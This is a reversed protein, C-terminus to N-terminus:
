CRDGDGPRQAPRSQATTTAARSGRHALVARLRPDRVVIIVAGIMVLTSATAAPVGAAANTATAFNFSIHWLAVLLISGRSGQYMWTLLLSGATLGILWGIKAGAGLDRFSQAVWFMPLHWLAWAPAVILAAGVVGHRPLLQDTLYGRWGIEEGFGNVVVAYLVTAVAPLPGIGSYTLYDAGPPLPQGRLAAVIPALVLMSGAALVLAYWRWPIRWRFVRAVLDKVGARGATVATVIIAAVAPGLLGPLHTPWAQGPRAVAGTLAMPIWWSWTLAYALLVFTVLRHRIVWARVGRAQTGAPESSEPGAPGTAPTVSPRVMSV